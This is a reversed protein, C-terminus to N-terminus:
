TGVEQEVRQPAHLHINDTLPLRQQGMFLQVQDDAGSCEFTTRQHQIQLIMLSRQDPNVIAEAM